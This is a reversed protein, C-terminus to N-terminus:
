LLRWAHMYRMARKLAPSWLVSGSDCVEDRISIFGKELSRAINTLSSNQKAKNLIQLVDNQLQDLRTYRGGSVWGSIKHLSFVRRSKSRLLYM